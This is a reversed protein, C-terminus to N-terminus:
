RKSAALVSALLAALLIVAGMPSAAAAEIEGRMAPYYGFNIGSLGTGAGALGPCLVYPGIVRTTTNAWGVKERAQVYFTYEGSLIQTLDFCFSGPAGTAGTSQPNSNLTFAGPYFAEAPTEADAGLLTIEIGNLGPESQAM